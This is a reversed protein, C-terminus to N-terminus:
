DQDFAAAAGRGADTIRRLFGALLDLEAGSCSARIEAVSSNMGGYLRLIEM